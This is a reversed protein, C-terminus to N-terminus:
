LKSLAEATECLGIVAWCAGWFMSTPEIRDKKGEKTGKVQWSGDENQTQSLFAHAKAIAPHAATLKDRGLAFIAIGTGLADSDDACLWGWGGDARQRKLLEERIRNAKDNNGLRRELMLRTAWWETSLGATEEGLWARAKEQAAPLADDQVGSAGRALLAWTTSVETTERKPRKQGPLQGGPNWSGDDRQGKALQTAYEAVWEPQNTAIDSVPRGLLLQAITDSGGRVTDERVAQARASPSALNRWDTAWETWRALKEQDVPVGQQNAANLSWVMFSTHHCSLCDKSAIWAAGEREIYPVSRAVIDRVTRTPKGANAETKPAPSTLGGTDEDAVATDPRVLIASALFLLGIGFQRVDRWQNMRASCGSIIM